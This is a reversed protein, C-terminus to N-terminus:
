GSLKNRHKQYEEASVWYDPVSDISRTIAFLVRQRDGVDVICQWEFWRGGRFGLCELDSVPAYMGPVREKYAQYVTGSEVYWGEGQFWGKASSSLEEGEACSFWVMSQNFRRIHGSECADIVQQPSLAYKVDLYDDEIPYPKKEEIAVPM